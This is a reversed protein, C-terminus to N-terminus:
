KFKSWHIKQRDTIEQSWTRSKGMAKSLVFHPVRHMLRLALVWSSLTVDKTKSKLATVPPYLYCTRDPCFM